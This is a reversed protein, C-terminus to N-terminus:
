DQFDVSTCFAGRTNDADYGSQRLSEELACLLEYQARRVTPTLLSHKIRAM